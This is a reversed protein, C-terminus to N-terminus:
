DRQHIRVNGCLIESYAYSMTKLPNPEDVAVTFVCPYTAVIEATFKVMQRRGKNVWMDVRKGKLLSIQKQVDSLTKTSVKMISIKSM